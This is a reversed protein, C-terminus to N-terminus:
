IYYLVNQKMFRWMNASLLQKKSMLRIDNTENNHINTNKHYKSRISNINIDQPLYIFFVNYIMTVFVGEKTDKELEKKSRNRSEFHFQYILDNENFNGLVGRTEEKLERLACKYASEYKKCGGVVFTLEDYTADKVVIFKDNLIPIVVSKYRYELKM